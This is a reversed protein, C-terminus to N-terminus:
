QPLEMKVHKHMLFFFFFFFINSNICTCIGATQFSCILMDFHDSGKCLALLRIKQGQNRKQSLRFPELLLTHAAFVSVSTYRRAGRKKEKYTPGYSMKHIVYDWKYKNEFLLTITVVWLTTCHRPFVNPERAIEFWFDLVNLSRSSSKKNKARLLIILLFITNM